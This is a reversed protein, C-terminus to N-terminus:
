ECDSRVKRLVNDLEEIVAATRGVYQPLDELYSKEFEMSKVDRWYMKTDGWEIMLNKLAQALNSGSARVSM